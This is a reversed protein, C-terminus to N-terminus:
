MTMSPQGAWGSPAKNEKLIDKNGNKKGKEIGDDIGSDIRNNKSNNINNETTWKDNGNPKQRGRRFNIGIQQHENTRQQKKTRVDQEQIQKIGEDM